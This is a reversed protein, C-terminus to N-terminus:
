TEQRPEVAITQKQFLHRFGTQNFLLALGVALMIIHVWWLGVVPSIDGKVLWARAVNLLNTYTIYLLLAVALKSYRGQRPSTKSLPVALLTLVICLIASSIRSQLEAIDGLKDSRYLDITPTSKHKYHIKSPDREKIRIGHEEFKIVASNESGRQSEYRSGNHLVVFRDGTESDTYQRGTKSSIISLANDKTQQVFLNKINTKDKNAEQVYIVGVGDQLEKFRGPVIGKIDSESEVEAFIQQTKVEAWPAVVLTLAAQAIAVFVALGLVSRLVRFKGMGCAVLVVMESDKYMRSFALLIGLYLSLPLIFVLTAIIKYGLMTLVTDVTLIGEVVKSFLSALQGSVAIMLLVIAVGVLTTLVEKIFYRDIILIKNDILKFVYLIIIKALVSYLTCGNM